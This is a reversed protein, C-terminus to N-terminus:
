LAKLLWLRIENAQKIIEETFKKNCIKYIDTQYDPYRGELQFSNIKKLFSKQEENTSIKAKELLYQLNHIRVPHNSEHVKIWHAKCLKELVLHTFFLSQVYDRSKFLHQAAKWDKEATKKWHDIHDEKTM